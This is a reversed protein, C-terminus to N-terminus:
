GSKIMFSSPVVMVFPILWVFYQDFYVPNLALFSIVTFLIYQPQTIKKTIFLIIAACIFLVVPLRPLLLLILNLGPTTQSLLKYHVLLNEFGTNSVTSVSTQGARTASFFISTVLAKPNQLLFPIAPLLIPALLAGADLLRDLASRKSNLMPLLFIPLILIGLHKIGLSLGYLFFALRTKKDIFYLAALLLAVSIVDQKLMSVDLLTWRNLMFFAGGVLGVAKYKRFPLYIFLFAVFEFIQLASWYLPAFGAFSCHTLAAFGLLFYYYLPFLTAYKNNQLLNGSLVQAYPNIGKSLEVAQSWEYHIDSQQLNAPSVYNTANVIITILFIAAIALMEVVRQKNTM